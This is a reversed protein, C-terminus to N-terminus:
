ERGRHGRRGRRNLLEPVAPNSIVGFQADPSWFCGLGFTATEITEPLKPNM